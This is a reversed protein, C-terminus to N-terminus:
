SHGKFSKKLTYDNVEHHHHSNDICNIKYLILINEPKVIFELGTRFDEIVNPIDVLSSFDELGGLAPSEVRLVKLVVGEKELTKITMVSDLSSNLCLMDLLKSLTYVNESITTSGVWLQNIRKFTDAKDPYKNILTSLSMSYM